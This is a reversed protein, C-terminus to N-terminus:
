ASRAPPQRQAFTVADEILSTIENDIRTLEDKLVGASKVLYAGFRPIPDRKRCEELEEPTRYAPATEM